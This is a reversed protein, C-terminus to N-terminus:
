SSEINNIQIQGFMNSISEAYVAHFLNDLEGIQAIVESSRFPKIVGSVMTSGQLWVDPLEITNSFFRPFITLSNNMEKLNILAKYTIIDASVFGRSAQGCAEAPNM